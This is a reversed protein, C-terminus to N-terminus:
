KSEYIVKGRKSVSFHKGDALKEGAKIAEADSSFGSASYGGKYRILYRRNDIIRLM